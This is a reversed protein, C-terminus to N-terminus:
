FTGIRNSLLSRCLRHRIRNDNSIRNRFEVDHVPGDFNRDYQGCVRNEAAPHKATANTLTGVCFLGYLDHAIGAASGFLDAALECFVVVYANGLIGM